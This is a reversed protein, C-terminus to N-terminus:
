QYLLLDTLPHQRPKPLQSGATSLVGGGVLAAAEAADPLQFHCVSLHFGVPSRLLQSCRHWWPPGRKRGKLPPSRRSLGDPLRPCWGPPRLRFTKLPCRVASSVESDQLCSELVVWM